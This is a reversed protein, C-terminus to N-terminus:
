RAERERPLTASNLTRRLTRHHAIATRALVPSFLTFGFATRLDCQAPVHHKITL